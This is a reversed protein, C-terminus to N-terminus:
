DNFFPLFSDLNGQEENVYCDDFYQEGMPALSNGISINSASQVYSKPGTMGAVSKVTNMFREELEEASYQIQPMIDLARQKRTLACFCSAMFLDSYGTAKIANTNTKEINSCQNILDKSKVGTPNERICEQFCGIMLPKSLGTTSIGYKGDKRKRDDEAHMFPLYNFDDVLDPILLQEIPSQGITNNEVSLIIRDGVREYLWQFAKHISQGFATYSGFRYQCEAIQNFDKFSYIQIACFASNLSIATDCGIIYYDLNTINYDYVSLKAGHVLPIDDVKKQSKFSALEDDTFICNQGGVFLLDLEQNIMRQDDLEQCQEHYWDDDKSEDESWHYKIRIFGNQSEKIIKPINLQPNWTEDSENPIFLDDSDIANLWRRYFWEGHGNTGNPTSTIFIFYPFGNEIAQQRAKSLTQQASGYIKEMDKIFASEDIYLIPVTLSRALTSSDHSTSPYFVDVKSGNFLEFYTKIDSKSKFPKDTVMWAPLKSIIFKITKLNNLGANMKMNLIVAKNDPFFVMAWAIMCAAITSKGLQRSAMLVARHYKFLTRIVRRMKPHMVNKDYRLEGGIQPILVYNQIFYLPNKRCMYWEKAYDTADSPTMNNLKSEIEQQTM